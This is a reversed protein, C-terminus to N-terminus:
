MLVHLVMAAAAGGALTGAILAAGGLVLRRVLSPKKTM